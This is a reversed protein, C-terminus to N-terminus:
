DDIETKKLVDMMANLARDMLPVGVDDLPVAKGTRLWSAFGAVPIEVVKMGKRNVFLCTGSVMSRWSLKARFKMGSSEQIEFWTGVEIQEAQ